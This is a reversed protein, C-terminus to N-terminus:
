DWPNRDGVTAHARDGDFNTFSLESVIFGLGAMLGGMSVEDGDRTFLVLYYRQGTDTYRKEEVTYTGKTPAGGWTGESPYTSYM